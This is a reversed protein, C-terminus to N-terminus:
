VYATGVILYIASPPFVMHTLRINRPLCIFSNSLNIRIALGKQVRMSSAAAYKYPSLDSWKACFLPFIVMM